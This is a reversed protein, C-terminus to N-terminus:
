APSGVSGKRGLMKLADYGCDGRTGPGGNGDSSLWNADCECLGQDFNCTGHNACEANEKTGKVSESVTLSGGTLTSTAGDVALLPLDGLETRFTVLKSAGTADCM